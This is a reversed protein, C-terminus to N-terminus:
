AMEMHDGACCFLLVFDNMHHEKLCLSFSCHIDVLVFKYDKMDIHIIIYSRYTLLMFVQVAYPIAEFLEILKTFGYSAVRCQHGFHRHFAPIFKSFPMRYHPSHRLLDVVDSAFHKTRAMEEPTQDTELVCCNNGKCKEDGIFTKVILPPIKVIHNTAKSMVDILRSFSIGRSNM